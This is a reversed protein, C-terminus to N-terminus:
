SCGVRNTKLGTSEPMRDENPGPEQEITGPICQVLYEKALEWPLFYVPYEERNQFKSAAHHSGDVLAFTQYGNRFKIQVYIGPRDSNPVHPYHMPVTINIHLAQALQSEDLNMILSEALKSNEKIGRWMETIDFVHTGLREDGGVTYCEHHLYKSEIIDKGIIEYETAKFETGIRSKSICEPCQGDSPYLL